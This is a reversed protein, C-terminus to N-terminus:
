GLVRRRKNTYYRDVGNRLLALTTFRKKRVAYTGTRGPTPSDVVDIHERILERVLSVSVVADVGFPSCNLTKAVDDRKPFYEGREELLMIMALVKGTLEPPRTIEFKEMMFQEIAECVDRGPILDPRYVGPKVKKKKEM